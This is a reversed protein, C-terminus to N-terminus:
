GAKRSATARAPKVPPLPPEGLIMDSGKEGIMITAANTNAGVIRPMISADVVRLGQVGRVRLQEDVVALEDRGMKCTGVAHMDVPTTRAVYADLQADSQTDVGPDLEKGRIDAFARQAVIERALRFGSRARRRDSEASYLNPDVTPPVFPDASRLRVEGKSEPRHIAGRVMFGHQDVIKQGNGAYMAMVFTFKIDPDDRDAYASNVIAVAEVPPGALPGSRRFVYDAAARAGELPNNFYGYLTIPRTATVQISFALHDQLNLGVGKLDVVAKIGHASLHNADGVGSLLLLHPSNYVGCSVIVVNEARVRQLQGEHVYEVGVARTGEFLVRTVHAGTIVSLNPRKLAPRLFAISTSVRLGKRITLQTPGFGPRHAGNIDDNLPFGAEAGAACWAQSLPHKMPSRTVGLPGDAGHYLSAGFEFSESRKFYPLVEAYSWGANGLEHWHDYDRPSGRDYIMGNISSTGGLVKGRPDYLERNNLHKQPTTVYKWCSIGRRLMILNGAPVHILPSGDRGGAEILLVRHVPSASLRNALVCGASGAGVVIFDYM